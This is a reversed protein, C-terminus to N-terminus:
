GDLDSLRVQIRRTSIVILIGLLVAWAKNSVIEAAITVLDFDLGERYQLYALILGTVATIGIANTILKLIETVVFASKKIMPNLEFIPRDLFRQITQMGQIGANVVNRITAIETGTVDRKYVKLFRGIERLPDLDRYIRIALTDYLMNARFVRVTDLNVPIQYRRTVEFLKYFVSASTKEYWPARKSWVRRMVGSIAIELDKMLKFMDVRPFPEMFALMVRVVGGVDRRLHAQMYEVSLRQKARSM